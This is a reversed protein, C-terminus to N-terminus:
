VKVNLKLIGQIADKYDSDGSVLVFSRFAAASGPNTAEMGVLPYTQFSLFSAINTDVRKERATWSSKRYTKVMVQNAEYNKWISDTPPPVSGFVVVCALPHHEKSQLCQAMSGINVRWTPDEGDLGKLRGATRKGEIWLNSNDILYICGPRQSLAWENIDTTREAGAM